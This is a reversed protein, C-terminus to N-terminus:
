EVENAIKRVGEVLSKSFESFSDEIFKSIRDAKVQSVAQYGYLKQFDAIIPLSPHNKGLFEEVTKSAKRNNCDAHTLLVNGATGAGGHKHPIIHDAQTKRPNDNSVGDVLPKLCLYCRGEFMMLGVRVSTQLDSGSACAEDLSGRKLTNKVAKLSEPRKSRKTLETDKFESWSSLNYKEAMSSNNLLENPLDNSM